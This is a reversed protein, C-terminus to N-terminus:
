RSRITGEQRRCRSWAPRREAVSPTSLGPHRGYYQFDAPQCGLRGLPRRGFPRGTSGPQAPADQGGGVALTAPNRSPGPAHPSSFIPLPNVLSAPAPLIPLNGQLQRRMRGVLRPVHDTRQFSSLAHLYSGTLILLTPVPPRRAALGIWLSRLLVVGSSILEPQLHGAARLPPRFAKLM